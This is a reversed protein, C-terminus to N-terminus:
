RRGGREYKNHVCLDELYKDCLVMKQGVLAYINDIGYINNESVHLEFAIIM